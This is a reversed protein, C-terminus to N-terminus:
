IIKNSFEMLLTLINLYNKPGDTIKNNFKIQFWRLFYVKMLFEALPSLNSTPKEQAVYFRLIRCGLTLWRSHNLRGVELFELNADVSGLMVASCIRYANYQDSSFDDMLSNPIVPFKPNQIFKFKM